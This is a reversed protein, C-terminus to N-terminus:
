DTAVKEGNKKKKEGEVNSKKNNDFFFFFRSKLYIEKIVKKIKENM